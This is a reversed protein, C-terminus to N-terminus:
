TKKGLGYNHEFHYGNNFMTVNEVDLFDKMKKTYRQLVPGNNTLWQNDWIEKLGECFESFSPRFSPSPSM